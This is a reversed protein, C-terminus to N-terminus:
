PLTSDYLAGDDVAAGKKGQSKSVSVLVEGSCANGQNDEAPFTIHYVRGNEGGAREARVHAHPRSPNQM